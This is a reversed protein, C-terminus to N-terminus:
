SQPFGSVRVLLTASQFLAVTKVTKGSLKQRGSNVWCNYTKTLSPWLGDRCVQGTQANARLFFLLIFILGVFDFSMGERSCTRSSVPNNGLSISDPM